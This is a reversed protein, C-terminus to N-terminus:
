PQLMAKSKYQLRSLLLIAGITLGILLGIWFGQPGTAPLILDTKALIYGVPLGIVWYSIFVLLLPLVTDKYGRLAGACTVQIADSFQFCAAIIILNSAIEIIRLEDTYLAAIQPALIGMFSSNILAMGFTILLGTRASFRAKEPSGEGLQHGVRITLAMAISLPLMFILGTFSLTIQHSAIMVEGLDALLLAIVCFM